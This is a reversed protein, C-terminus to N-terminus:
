GAAQSGDMAGGTTGWDDVESRITEHWDGHARILWEKGLSKAVFEWGPLYELWELNYRRVMRLFRGVSSREPRTPEQLLRFSRGNWTRERRMEGLSRDGKQHNCRSCCTVRNLWLDGEDGDIESKPRIHDITLECDTDGCYQCRYGDRHYVNHRSYRLRRDWKVYSPLMVVSPLDWEEGGASRIRVLTGDEERARELVVVTNELMMIMGRQWPCTVLPMMDANLILVRRNKMAM